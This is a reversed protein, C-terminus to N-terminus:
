KKTHKAKQAKPEPVPFPEDGLMLSRCKEWHRDIKSNLTLDWLSLRLESSFSKEASKSAPAPAAKSAPQLGFIRGGTTQRRECTM